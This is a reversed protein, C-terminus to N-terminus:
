FGMCADRHQELLKLAERAMFRTVPDEDTATVYQLTLTGRKFVSQPIANEWEESNKLRSDEINITVSPFSM